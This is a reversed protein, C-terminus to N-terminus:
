KDRLNETAKLYQNYAEKLSPKRLPIKIKLGHKNVLKRLDKLKQTKTPPKPKFEKVNLLNNEFDQLCEKILLNLYKNIANKGNNVTFNFREFVTKQNSSIIIFDSKLYQLFLDFEIGKYKLKFGRIKVIESLYYKIMLSQRNLSKEVEFYFRICKILDTTAPPQVKITSRYELNEVSFDKTNGNIFNIQGSRIPIKGFTELIIKAINFAKNNIIIKGNIITLNRKTISNYCAGKKTVYLGKIKTKRFGQKQLERISSAKNVASKTKKAKTTNQLSSDILKKLDYLRGNFRIKGSLTPILECKSSKHWAKGDITLYLGKVTTKKFATKM